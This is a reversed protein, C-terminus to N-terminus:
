TERQFHWHLAWREFRVFAASLVYGLLGTLMTGGWAEAMAFAEKKDRIYFGLGKSAGVFEGIVMLVLAIALSIRLGAMIQPLAAMILIKRNRLTFPIRFAMATEMLQPNMGRVGDITNLMIPWVCAIAIIFIKPEPGTGLAVIVLPVIAAPPIARVFSLFPSTAERLARWEGIVLGFGVGFITAIILGAAMNWLSASLHTLLIGNSLDRWTVEVINSLPPFYFSGSSMSGLWWSAVLLVPLWTLWLIATIRSKLTM